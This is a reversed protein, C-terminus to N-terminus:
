IQLNAEKAFDALAQNVVHNWIEQRSTRPNVYHQARVLSALSSSALSLARIMYVAETFTQPEAMSALRRIALRMIDIEAQLDQTPREDEGDLWRRINDISEGLEEDEEPTRPRNFLGTPPMEPQAYFGHKIANKNGPQAGRKRKAPPQSVSSPQQDPQEPEM